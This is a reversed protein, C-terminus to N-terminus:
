PFVLTLFTPIINEASVIGRDYVLCGSFIHYSGLTSVLDSLTKTDHINGHFLKHFLPIGKDQTVALGIQILPRGKVGEKDHGRKALSCKKGYFYTNTVDYILSKKRVPIKKTINSFL